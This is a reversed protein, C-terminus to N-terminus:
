GDRRRPRPARRWSPRASRRARPAAACRGRARCRPRCASRAQQRRELEAEAPRDAAAPLPHGPDLAVVEHPQDRVDIAVGDSVPATLAVAGSAPACRPNARRARRTRQMPRREHAIGAASRCASAPSRASSSRSPPWRTSGSLASAVPKREPVRGERRARRSAPRAFMRGLATPLPSAPERRREVEATRPAHAHIPWRRPADWARRHPTALLTDGTVATRVAPRAALRGHRDRNSRRSRSGGDSRRRRCRYGPSSRSSRPRVAREVRGAAGRGARGPPRGEHVQELDRGAPRRRDGEQDALLRRQRALRRHRPARHLRRVLRRPFGPQHRDQRRGALGSAAGEARHRHRLTERMMANMMRSTARSSSAASITRRVRPLAGQRRHHARARGRAPAIAMGGNAFPAYASVLEILSVESTGLALSPNPDLKSAIGLRYATKAVATPGFELTLRVSVTNLSM